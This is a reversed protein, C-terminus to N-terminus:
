GYANGVMRVNSLGWGIAEIDDRALGDPRYAYLLARIPFAKM